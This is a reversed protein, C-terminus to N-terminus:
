RKTHQKNRCHASQAHLPEDRKIVARANGRSSHEPSNPYFVIPLFASRKEKTHKESKCREPQATSRRSRQSQHRTCVPSREDGTPDAHRLAMHATSARATTDDVHDLCVTPALHINLRALRAAVLLLSQASPKARRTVRM